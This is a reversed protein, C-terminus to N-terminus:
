NIFKLVADFLEDFDYPKTIFASAGLKACLVATPVDAHATVVIVPVQIDFEDMNKLVEDGRMEPMMFDLILLNYHSSKLKLLGDIGNLVYETRFKLSNLEESLAKCHNEDDDILLIIPQQFKDM